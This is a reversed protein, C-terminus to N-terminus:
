EAFGLVAFNSGGTGVSPLGFTKWVADATLTSTQGTFLLPTITGTNSVSVLVTRKDALTLRAVVGSNAHYRGQGPSGKAPTLVSISKIESDDGGVTIADGTRLLPTGGGASLGLLVTSNGRT